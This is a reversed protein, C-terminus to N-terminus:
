IHQKEGHEQIAVTSRAPSGNVCSYVSQAMLRMSEFYDLAVPTGKGKAAKVEVCSRSHNTSVKDLGGRTHSSALYTAPMFRNAFYPDVGSLMTQPQKDFSKFMATIDQELTKLKKILDIENDLYLEQHKPDLRVLQPTIMRVAMIALRPDNWFALDYASQRDAGDGEHVARPLLPVYNSLTFPKDQLLPTQDM